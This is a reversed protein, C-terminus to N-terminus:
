KAHSLAVSLVRHNNRQTATLKVKVETQDQGVTKFCVTIIQRM